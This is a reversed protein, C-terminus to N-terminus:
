FKMSFRPYPLLVAPGGGESATLERPQRVRLISQGESGGTMHRQVDSAVGEAM